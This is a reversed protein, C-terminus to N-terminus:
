RILIMKKRESLKNITLEYFYIGSSLGEANFEISHKGASQVTNLIENILNGRIDYIKLEVKSKIKNEFSIVTAPNFPNPYNQYLKFDGASFSQRNANTMIDTYKYVKGTQTGAWLVNGNRSKELITFGSADFLQQTWSVGSDSSYKIYFHDAPNPIYWSHSGNIAVDETAGMSNDSSQWSEAADRTVYVEPSSHIVALGFNVSGFFIRAPSIMMIGSNTNLSWSQGFDPSYCVGHNALCIWLKNENGYIIGKGESNLVSFPPQTILSTSWTIGFDVTKHLLGTYSIIGSDNKMWVNPIETSSTGLFVRQWNEGGNITRYVSQFGTKFATDKNLLFLGSPIFVPHNIVTWNSGGNETKYVKDFNTIFWFNNEDSASAVKVIENSPTQYILQWQTFAPISILM